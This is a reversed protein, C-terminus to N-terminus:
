FPLDSDSIAEVYQDGEKQEPESKRNDENQEKSKAVFFSMVQVRTESRKKGEKDIWESTILKGDVVVIDGKHMDRIMKEATFGFASLRVWYTRKAWEGTTKNQYSDDIALSVNAATVGTKTTNVEPERGINGSVIVSNIRM